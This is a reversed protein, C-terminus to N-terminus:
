LLFLCVFLCVFLVNNVLYLSGQMSLVHIYTPIRVITYVCLLAGSLVSTPINMIFGIVICCYM